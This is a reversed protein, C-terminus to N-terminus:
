SNPDVKKMEDQFSQDVILQKQEATLHDWQPSPVGRYNRETSCGTIALLCSCFIMTKAISKAV